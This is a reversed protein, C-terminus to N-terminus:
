DTEKIEENIRISNLYKLEAKTMQPEKDYYRVKNNKRYAMSNDLEKKLNVIDDTKQNM